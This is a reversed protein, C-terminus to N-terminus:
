INEDNDKCFEVIMDNVKIYKSHPNVDYGKLTLGNTLLSKVNIEKLEDATKNKYHM